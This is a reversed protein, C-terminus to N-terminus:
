AKIIPALQWQHSRGMRGTVFWILALQWRHSRGLKATRSPMPALVSQEYIIKEQKSWQPAPEKQILSAGLTPCSNCSPRSSCRCHLCCPSHYNHISPSLRCLECQWRPAFSHEASCIFAGRLLYTTQQIFLHGGVGWENVITLYYWSM